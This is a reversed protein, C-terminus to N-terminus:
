DDGDSEFTDQWLCGGPDMHAAQNPQNERCGWCASKGEVCQSPDEEESRLDALIGQWESLLDDAAHLDRRGLTEFRDSIDRHDAVIAVEIYGTARPNECTKRKKSAHEM